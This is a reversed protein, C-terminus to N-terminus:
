MSVIIYCHLYYNNKFYEKRTMTKLKLESRLKKVSLLYIQIGRM